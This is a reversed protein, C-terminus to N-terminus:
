VVSKRDTNNGQATGGFIALKGNPLIIPALYRRGHSIPAVQRVVPNTSTGADFDLIEVSTLGPNNSTTSGGCLLIKGREYINNNLPFLFSTGYSRTPRNQTVPSGWTETAPNWTMFVRGGGCLVVLGSPMLHMRPYTGGLPTVGSNPGGYCPSGAGPCPQGSGVCYTNSSSSDYSISWSGSNPDYIELLGNIVGYEDLGTVTFVRGDALTVLTPYWRGHAMSSIKSLSESNWNLIYASSLGHMIGNCNDPNSDYLLTGGVFLINGDPLVTSGGCFLDETLVLNTESSNSPDLIRAEFPGNPRDEHYGSGALYFIKGNPLLASHIAVASTNPGIAWSGSSQALASQGYPKLLEPLAAFRFVAGLGIGVMGSGLLKLFDRRSVRRGSV